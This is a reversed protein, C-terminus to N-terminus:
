MRGFELPPGEYQDLDPLITAASVTATPFRLPAGARIMGEAEPVPPGDATVLMSAVGNFARVRDLYHQVVAIVTTEGARIARHLEDITAEELRFQAKGAGGENSM